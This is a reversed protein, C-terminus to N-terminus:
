DASARRRGGRILLMAGGLGLAALTGPEPVTSDWALGYAEPVPTGFMQDAYEVRIAYLGDDPLVIHLEQVNNYVSMSEAYLKTFDASWVELFLNAMGSDDTELTQLNPDANDTFVPVGRDRFWDLTVDMTTGAALTTTM